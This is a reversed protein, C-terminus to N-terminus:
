RKVLTAVSIHPWDIGLFNLIVTQSYQLQLYVGGEHKVTEIWFVATLRTANASSEAFPISVAGGKPTSSIELVVTKEFEQGEIAQTLILNPNAISRDPLGRPLKATHCPLLYLSDSLPKGDMLRPTSSARPIKPGGTVTTFSGQAVLSDGNAVTALRVVTEAQEPDKNAPINLWIGPERNLAEQTVAHYVMHLYHLGLFEINDLASRRNPVPAGIESFSLTERTANLKVRFARDDHQAPLTVLNIGNGIWTGPLDELPGLKPLAASLPLCARLTTV